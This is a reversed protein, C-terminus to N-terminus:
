DWVKLGGLLTLCDFITRRYLSFDKSDKLHFLGELKCLISFFIDGDFKVLANM